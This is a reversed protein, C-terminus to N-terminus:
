HPRHHFRGSTEAPPPSIFPNQDFVVPDTGARAGNLKSGVRVTPKALYKYSIDGNEVGVAGRNRQLRYISANNFIHLNSVDNGPVRPVREENPEALPLGTWFPSTTPVDKDAVDLGLDGKTATITIVILSPRPIPEEM